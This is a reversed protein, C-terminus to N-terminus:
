KSIFIKHFENVHEYKIKLDYLEIISKVISLGLGTSKNLSKYREFIDVEQDTDLGSNSIELGFNSVKFILKGNEINYNIANKVLNSLLIYALDKNMNVEFDSTVELIVEINRYEIQNEFSELIQNIKKTFSVKSIDVFQNGKIKSLLLLNKNLRKMRAVNSYISSLEMLNSESM